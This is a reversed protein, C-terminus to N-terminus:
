VTNSPLEKKYQTLEDEMKNVYFDKISNDKADNSSKEGESFYLQSAEFWTNKLKKALKM